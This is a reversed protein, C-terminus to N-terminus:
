SLVPKSSDRGPSCGDGDDSIYGWDKALGTYFPQIYLVM